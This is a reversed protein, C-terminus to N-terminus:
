FIRKLIKKFFKENGFEAMGRKEFLLLGVSTSYEPSSVSEELGTIGMPSGRRVPLNFVDEAIEQIGELLSTGGTLVIGTNLSREMGMRKIEDYILRFLEEARSQIIEWLVKKSYIKPQGGGVRAVEINDEEDLTPPTAGWKRKIKEAEPIPTRLGIAIDNTFHAGGIIITFTHWLFGREYVAVDTIGAGIDIVAVGLFKEDQTLVAEASAISSPVIGKVNIGSDTVCKILNSTATISNTIIHVNVELRIGTMGVPELIGPQNDVIFEQPLFQIIEIDPPISVAKAAEIVREKDKKTIERNKGSVAVMGRSNFSRINLGSISVWASDIEVASMIEAAKVSQKISEKTGQLDVISGHSVGRSDVTGVGIIEVEEESIKSVVTAVKKSGVDLGVVIKDKRGM